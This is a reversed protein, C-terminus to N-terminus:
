NKILLDIDDNTATGVMRAVRKRVVAIVGVSLFIAIFVMIEQSPRLGAARRDKMFHTM